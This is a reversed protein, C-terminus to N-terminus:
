APVRAERWAASRRAGPRSGDAGTCLAGGSTRTSHNAAKVDIVLQFHLSILKLLIFLLMIIFFNLSIEIVLLVM